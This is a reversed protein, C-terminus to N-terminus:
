KGKRAKNLEEHLTEIYEILESRDVCAQAGHIRGDKKMVFKGGFRDTYVRVKRDRAVLQDFDSKTM